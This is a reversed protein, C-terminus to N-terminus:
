RVSYDGRRHEPVAAVDVFWLLDGDQPQIRQAPYLNGQKPGHWLVELAAQKAGGCVLFAIQRAANLLPFTMTYRYAGLKPVYNAVFIEESEAVAATEPFLSATHCDDGLGLLVIDLRPISGGHETAQLERQLLDSYDRAIKEPSEAAISVPFFRPLCRPDQAAMARDLWAGRVMGFNSEVHDASVNREDGWFLHVKSWDLRRLEENALREYLRKPTSGGSL